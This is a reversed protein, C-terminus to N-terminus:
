AGRVLSGSFQSGTYIAVGGTTNYTYLEVYDTTGNFFILCSASGSAVGTALTDSGRTYEVGNKFLSVILRLVNATMWVTGNIQYYGAVLPQFRYNTVNDFSNNTDFTKTGLAVKTFTNITPTQSSATPSASFSPGNGLSALQNATTM